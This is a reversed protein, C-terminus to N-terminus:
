LYNNVENVIERPFLRRLSLLKVEHYKWFYGCIKNLSNQVLLLYNIHKRYLKDGIWSEIENNFEKAKKTMITIFKLYKMEKFIFSYKNVFIYISRMKRIKEIRYEMFAEQKSMTGNRWAYKHHCTFRTTVNIKWSLTDICWKTLEQLNNEDKCKEPKKLRKNSSITTVM